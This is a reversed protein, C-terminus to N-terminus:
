SGSALLSFRPLSIFVGAGRKEKHYRQALHGTFWDLMSM